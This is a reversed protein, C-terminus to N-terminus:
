FEACKECLGKIVINIEEAQFRVPLQIEPIGTNPMCYTKKCKTCHFHIHLDDPNCNCDDACLAYKLAGTGDDIHHILRHEEFTKLTRFLTVRDAKDFLMELDSLTIAYEQKLLTELVLIRMATPKIGRHELKDIIQKDM